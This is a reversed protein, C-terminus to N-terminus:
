EGDLIRNLMRAAAPTMDGHEVCETAFARLRAVPALLGADDLANAIRDPEDGIMEHAVQPDSRLVRDAVEAAEDRKSM